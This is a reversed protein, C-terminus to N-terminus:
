YLCWGNPVILSLSALNDHHQELQSLRSSEDGNYLGPRTMSNLHGPRDGAAFRISGPWAFCTMILADSEPRDGSPVVM